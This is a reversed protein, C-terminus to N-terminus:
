GRLGAVARGTVNGGTVAESTVDGSTMGERAAQAGPGM